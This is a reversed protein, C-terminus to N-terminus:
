LHDNEIDAGPFSRTKIINVSSQFRQNVIIYDIQNHYDVGPSHWTSCRSPKQPGFTNVVKLNSYSAFELLRLGRKNTEPNCYQGCSGKWNKFLVLTGFFSCTAEDPTFFFIRYFPVLNGFFPVALRM